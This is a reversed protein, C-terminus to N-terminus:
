LKKRLDKKAPVADPAAKPVAKLGGRPGGKGARDPAYKITEPLRYGLSKLHEFLAERLFDSRSKGNRARDIEAAFNADVHCGILTQGSARQNPM